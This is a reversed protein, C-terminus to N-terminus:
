LPMDFAYVIDDVARVGSLYAGHMSGEYEPVTAEGAFFVRESGITGPAAGPAGLTAGRGATHIDDDRAGVPVFSYSGRQYPEDAWSRTLQTKQSPLTCPIPTPPRPPM